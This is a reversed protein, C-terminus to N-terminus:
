PVTTSMPTTFALTNLAQADGLGVVQVYSLGLGNQM